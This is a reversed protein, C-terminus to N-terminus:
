GNSATKAGAPSLRQAAALHEKLNPLTKDIWAKLEPNRADKSAKEFRAIDERHDKVGVIQAYQRDFDAGSAKHLRDLQSQMAKPLQAPLAVDHASAFAKLEDNANTHDTVLMSAFQKVAPDSARQTALRSVQVELFVKGVCM